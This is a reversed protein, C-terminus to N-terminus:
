GSFHSTPVGIIGTEVGFLSGSLPFECLQAASLGMRATTIFLREYNLGGFTCSTVLPVPLRVVATVMGQPNFRTVRGGNWHACWLHDESDVTLGDPYGQDEPIRAFVRPKGIRGLKPDYPFALIERQVSNSFYLVHGDVSFAPGNCVVYGESLLTVDHQHDLRYIAGSPNTEKDDMSGAIFNGCPDCKGDNFRNDQLHSEPDILFVMSGDNSNLVAFGERTAAILGGKSRPAIAGVEISLDVSRTRENRLTYSHLQKGKIDLWYVTGSRDDWVPGEGLQAEAQWVVQASYTKPHQM